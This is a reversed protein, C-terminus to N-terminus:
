RLVGRLNVSRDGFRNGGTYIAELREFSSKIRDVRSRAERRRNPCCPIFITHGHKPSPVATVYPYMEVVLKVTGTGARLQAVANRLSGGASDGAIGLRNMDIHLREAHEALYDITENCDNVGAPFKNEPALRYDPFVM